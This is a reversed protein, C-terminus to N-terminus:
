LFVGVRIGFLHCNDSPLAFKTAARVSQPFRMGSESGALPEAPFTHRAVFPPSRRGFHAPPSGASTAQVRAGLRESPDEGGAPNVFALM